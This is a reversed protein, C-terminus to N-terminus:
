GRVRENSTQFRGKRCIRGVTAKREKELVSEVSQPSNISVESCIQKKVKKGTKGSKIQQSRETSNLQGM